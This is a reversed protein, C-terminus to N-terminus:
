ADTEEPAPLDSGDGLHELKSVLHKLQLVLGRAEEPSVLGLELPWIVKVKDEIDMTLSARNSYHMIPVVRIAPDVRRAVPQVETFAFRGLCVIVKPQMIRIEQELYTDICHQKRIALKAKVSTKELGCKVVDTFYPYRGQDQHKIYDFFRQINDNGKGSGANKSLGGLWCGSGNAKSPSEAVVMYTAQEDGLLSTYSAEKDKGLNVDCAECHTCKFGPTTAARAPFVDFNAYRERFLTLIQEHKSMSHNIIISRTLVDAHPLNHHSSYSKDNVVM